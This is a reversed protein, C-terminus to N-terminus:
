EAYVLLDARGPRVFDDIAIMERLRVAARLDRLWAFDRACRAYLRIARPDDEDEHAMVYCDVVDAVDPNYGAFCWARGADRGRGHQMLHVLVVDAKEARSLHALEDRSPHSNHIVIDPRDYNDGSDGTTQLSHILSQPYSQPDFHDMEIRDGKGLRSTPRTIVPIM